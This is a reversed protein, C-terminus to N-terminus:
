LPWYLLEFSAAYAAESEDIGKQRENLVYHLLGQTSRCRYRVVQLQWHLPLWGSNEWDVIGSLRGDKVLINHSRLDCHVYVVTDATVAQVAERYLEDRSNSHAIHHYCDLITNFPGALSSFSDTPDPLGHGSASVMVKGALATPQRLTWLKRLVCFIDEVVPRIADLDKLLESQSSLREGPMRTMVTYSNGEEEVFIEDVLVPVPLQLGCENLFRLASAEANYVGKSCKMVLDIGNHFYFIDPFWTQQTSLLKYQHVREAGTILPNVRLWEYIAQRSFM